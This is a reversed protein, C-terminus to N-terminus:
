FNLLTYLPVVEKSKSSLKYYISKLRVIDTVELPTGMNIYNLVRLKFDLSNDIYVKKFKTKYFQWWKRNKRLVEKTVIESPILHFLEHFANCITDTDYGLDFLRCVLPSKLDLEFRLGCVPSFTVLDPMVFMTTNTIIM